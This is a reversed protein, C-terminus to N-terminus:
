VRLTKQKILQINAIILGTIVLVLSIIHIVTITEGLIWSAEISSFIPILNGFLATRAAGLRAISLNWCFYAIVSAGLGLYIIVWVLNQSWQVPPNNQLEWIWAPILLLTGLIFTVLLFTLPTIGVPKRKVLINYVAFCFAGAIVYWDGKSFRFALLKEMKASSLLVFIGIICLCLGFIRLITIKEKLFIAALFIVFIPSSTTGILALNIATSYHGAIYIFSNFFTMGWLATWFFYNLNQRVLKQEKKFQKYGFPIIIISACLWRYFALSFPPIQKYVGRAVIFNGSWILTALVALGIGAYISAKKTDSAM